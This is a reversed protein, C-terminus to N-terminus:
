PFTIYQLKINDIFQVNKQDEEPPSHVFLDCWNTHKNFANADYHQEKKVGIVYEDLMPLLIENGRDSAPWFLTMTKSWRSAENNQAINSIHFLFDQEWLLTKKVRDKGISSRLRALTPQDSTQNKKM